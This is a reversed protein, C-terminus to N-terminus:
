LRSHAMFVAVVGILGVPDMVSLAVAVNRNSGTVSFAVASRCNFVSQDTLFNTANISVAEICTINGIFRLTIMPICDNTIFINYDKRSEAMLQRFSGFFGGSTHFLTVIGIPDAAAAAVYIFICICCYQGRHIGFLTGECVMGPVLADNSRSRGAFVITHLGIGTLNIAAVFSFRFNDTGGSVVIHATLYSIGPTCIISGASCGAGASIVATARFFCNGTRARGCNGCGSGTFGSTYAGVSCRETCFPRSILVSSGGNRGGSMGVPLGDIGPVLVALRTGCSVSTGGCATGMRFDYSCRNSRLLGFFGGARIHAYSGIGCCKRSLYGPCLGLSLFYCINGSLAMGVPLGDIGPGLVASRTSCGASTGYFGTSVRFGRIRLYSRLLGFFGGARIHAFSGIDCRKTYVPRYGLFLGQHVDRCSMGPYMLIFDGGSAFLGSLGATTLATNAVFFLTHGYDGGKTVVPAVPSGIFVTGMRAATLAVITLFKLCRSTGAAGGSTFRRRNAFDAMGCVTLRQSMHVSVDCIGPGHFAFLPNAFGLADTLIICGMHFSGRGGGATLYLLIRCTGGHTSRFISGVKRFGPCLGLGFIYYINRNLPMLISSHFSLFSVQLRCCATFSIGYVVLGTCVASCARCSGCVFGSECVSLSESVVPACPFGSTVTGMLAATLAVTALFGLCRTTGAARSGAFFCGDASDAVCFIARRQAMIVIACHDCIGPLLYAFGPRTCCASLATTTFAMFFLGCLSGNGGLYGSRSGTQFLTFGGIGCAKRFGPSDSLHLGLLINLKSVMSRVASLNCFGGEILFLAYSSEVAGQTFFGASRFRNRSRALDM